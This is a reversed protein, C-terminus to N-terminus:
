GFPSIKSQAKSCFKFIIQSDDLLSGVTIIPSSIKNVLNIALLTLIWMQLQKVPHEESCHNIVKKNVLKCVVIWSCSSSLM